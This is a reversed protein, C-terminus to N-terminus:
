EEVEQTESNAADWVMRGIDFGMYLLAAAIFGVQLWAPREKRKTITYKTM